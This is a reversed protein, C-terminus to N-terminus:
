YHVPRYFIHPRLKLLHSQVHSSPFLPFPTQKRVKGGRAGRKWGWKYHSFKSPPPPLSAANRRRRRKRRAGEWKRLKKKRPAREREKRELGCVCLSEGRDIMEAVFPHSPSARNKERSKGLMGHVAENLSGLFFGPRKLIPIAQKSNLNKRGTKCSRERGAPTNVASNFTPPSLLRGFQSLSLFIWGLVM